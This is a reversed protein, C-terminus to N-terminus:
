HGHQNCLLPAPACSIMTSPLSLFSLFRPGESRLDLSNQPSSCCAAARQPTLYWWQHPQSSSNWISGLRDLAKSAHAGLKWVYSGAAQKFHKGLVRDKLIATKPPVWPACLLCYLSPHPKPQALSQPPACSCHCATKNM